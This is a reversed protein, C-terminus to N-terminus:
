VVGRDPFRPASRPAVGLYDPWPSDNTNHSLRDVHQPTSLHSLLLRLIDGKYSLPGTYTLTYDHMRVFLHHDRQKSLPEVKTLAHIDQRIAFCEPSEHGILGDLIGFWRYGKAGRAGLLRAINRPSRRPYDPGGERAPCWGRGNAHATVTLM